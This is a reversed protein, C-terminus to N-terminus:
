AMGHNVGLVRGVAKNFQSWENRKKKRAERGTATLKYYKRRRGQEPEVWYGKILKRRELRHLAPYLSGEKIDFHGKSRTIVFQAIQYGYNDGRFLVDLILLDLTGTVLNPDM